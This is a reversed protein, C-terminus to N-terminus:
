VVQCWPKSLGNWQYIGSFHSYESQEVKGDKSGVTNILIGRAQSTPPEYQVFASRTQEEQHTGM